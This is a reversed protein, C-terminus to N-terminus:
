LVDVSPRPPDVPSDDMAVVILITEPVLLHDPGLDIAEGDARRRIRPRVSDVVALRHAERVLQLNAASADM